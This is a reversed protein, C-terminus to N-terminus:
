EATPALKEPERRSSQAQKRHSEAYQSHWNGINDSFPQGAPSGAQHGGQKQGDIGKVDIVGLFDAHVPQHHQPRQKAM